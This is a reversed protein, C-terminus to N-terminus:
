PLSRALRARHHEPPFMGMETSPPPSMSQWSGAVLLAVTLLVPVHGLFHSAYFTTELLTYRGSEHVVTSWLWARGHYLALDAYSVLYVAAPLLLLLRPDPAIAKRRPGNM